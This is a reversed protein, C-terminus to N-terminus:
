QEHRCDPTYVYGPLEGADPGSERWRRSDPIVGRHDATEV